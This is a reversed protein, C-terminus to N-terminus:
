RDRVGGAVSGEIWYARQAALFGDARRMALWHNVFQCMRECDKHMMYAFIVVAGLHKPRVATYGPHGSAWVGAQEMTWLAADWGKTVPLQDYDSVVVQRVQPFLKGALGRMVPNDFVAIGLGPHGLIEDMNLFSAVRPSPVILAMPSHYYSRSFTGWLMRSEVVYVGGAWLDMIGQKVDQEVKDFVVPVFVLKVNLSKAMDYACAVDYGVLQGQRNRYAFPVIGRGYGVRLTRTRQIRGLVTEGPQLGAQPHDRLFAERSPYITATVGRTLEAPLSFGLYTKQPRKLVEALLTHGGWALCATVVVLLGVCGLLKGARIKIKGYYNFTMLYTLFAFGMVSLAVQGYRSIMMTEVYLNTPKGPLQLWSGLFDVANVTSTPSGFCSFLTMFPLAAQEGSALSTRTYFAVFLIFFYVFFNGLQGLPYNVALSTEIIENKENGELGNAQALREAAQQIFPLAVVSLTTVLALTLGNRLDYLVQRYGVPILSSIVVPIVVLVLLACVLLFLSLYVVLGGAEAVKLTGVTVAFMAFVAVPALMVVWRWIKVCASRVLALIDLVREKSELGQIAVGFLASLLVVAPVYNNALDRFINGPLVLQLFDPGTRVPDAADVIIPPPSSPFALSLLYIVGLTGGWAALYFPWSKRLLQLAVKPSLRGLGHLLSSILYPYVVSELLMVYANGLPQLVKCADGALIGTLVGGAAGVGIWAALSM